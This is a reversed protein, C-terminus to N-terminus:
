LLVPLSKNSGYNTGIPSLLRNVFCGILFWSTLGLEVCLLSIKIFRIIPTLEKLCIHGLFQTTRWINGNKVKYNYYLSNAHGKSHKKM